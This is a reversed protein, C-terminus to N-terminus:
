VPFPQGAHQTQPAAPHRMKKAAIEIKELPNPPHSKIKQMYQCRSVRQMYQYVAHSKQIIQREKQKNDKKSYMELKKLSLSLLSWPGDGEL